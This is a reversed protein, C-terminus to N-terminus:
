YGSCLLRGFNEELISIFSSGFGWHTRQTHPHPPPASTVPWPKGLLKNAGLTLCALEGQTTVEWRRQSGRACVCTKTHPTSLIPAAEGSKHLSMYAAKQRLRSPVPCEGSRLSAENEWLYDHYVADGERAWGCGRAQYRM